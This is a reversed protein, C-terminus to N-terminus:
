DGAFGEYHRLYRLQPLNRVRMSDLGYERELRELTAPGTCRFVHLVPACSLAAQPIDGSLHQTTLLLRVKSHRHARMLRLIRRRLAGGRTADFWAHAEDILVNVQGPKHCAALLRDVEDDDFPLYAVSQRAGWILEVAQDVSHARPFDRLQLVGESDIVLIPNGNERAAEIAHFRALTTKGSDPCGIYWSTGTLM